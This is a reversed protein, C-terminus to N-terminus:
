GWGFVDLAEAFRASLPRSRGSRILTTLSDQRGMPAAVDEIVGLGSTFLYKTDM